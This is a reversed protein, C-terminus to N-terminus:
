KTPKVLKGRRHRVYHATMTESSHGLQDKAAAMGRSEETDTGAKARLDRFQFARIMPSIDLLGACEAGIASAECAMDRARDFAGRLGFKTLPQGKGDCILAAGVVKRAKIRDMVVALEGIIQVRLKAGTKNQIVSVAGDRVDARSMKLVDAPRQGTLYALDLADRLAPEACDKVADLVEDDIYVDRGPEDHGSIGACPNAKSTLGTNRAFNFIHSLLAKERNAAYPADRRLDLYQRVMVPDIDDIPLPPVNFIKLLNDLERLNILQTAPAKRPLAEARYRDAVHKFTVLDGVSSRERLKAWEQVALTYDKGLPIERRPRAPPEYYYYAVDGRWRVRMGQPLHLNRTPTRGM